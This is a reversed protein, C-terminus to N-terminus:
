WQEQNAWHVLWIDAQSLKYDPSKGAFTNARNSADTETANSTLIPKALYAVKVVRNAPAGFSKLVEIYHFGFDTYVVGKSGVANTFIFDNFPPVMKGWIVNKYIGGKDRTGDASYKVCLSDFNAGGKIATAISDIKVRALATDMVQVFKGTQPDQQATAILIHRVDVSDAVQKTDIMKATVYHTNDLYPGYISGVPTKLISDKVAQQMSKALTFTGEYPFDSGQVDLFAKADKTELLGKSLEGINNRVEATDEASPAASFSVYNISRSETQKYQKKNKNVEKMIEEDSIKIASDAGFLSDTYNVKVFSIKAM